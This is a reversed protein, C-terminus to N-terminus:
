NPWRRHMWLWQGPEATIWAELRRNVAMLGERVDGDAAFHMPPEVIVEYRCQALRRTRVPFVPCGYRMAFSVVAPATFADRGFFPVPLGTNLKQDVVLIVHEGAKLAKVIERAGAAGKAVMDAVYPDRAGAILADVKPNNAARYVITLPKTHGFLALPIVEWNALHACFLLAPKDGLAALQEQGSVTVRNEHRRDFRHLLAYEVMTRGFNDWAETLYKARADASLDPLALAMNRAAVRNASTLTGITRALAGGFTSAAETPLLRLMAFLTRAFAAEIGHRLSKLFGPGM